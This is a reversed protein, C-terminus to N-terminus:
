YNVVVSYTGAYHGHSQSAAMTMTAGVALTLRGASDMAPSKGANHSFSGVSMAAGSGSAADGSAFSITVATNPEGRITVIGAKSGTASLMTRGGSKTVGTGDFHMPTVEAVAAPTPLITVSAHGIATAGLAAHSLLASALVVAAGATKARYRSM